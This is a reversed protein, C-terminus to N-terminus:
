IQEEKMLYYTGICISDAVDDPVDLGYKNKVYKQSNEKLEKRTKGKINLESRWTSSHIINYNIENINSLEILAGVLRSLKGYTLTNSQAQVDEILIIDIQYEHILIDFYDCVDIIKNEFTDGKARYLGYSLLKFDDEWENKEFISFGTKTAQDLALLVTMSM